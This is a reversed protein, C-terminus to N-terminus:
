AYEPEEEEIEDGTQYFDEEDAADEASPAFEYEAGTDDFFEAAGDIVCLQGRVRIMMGREDGREKSGNDFAKILSQYNYTPGSWDSLACFTWATCERLQGKYAMATCIYERGNVTFTPVSAVGTGSEALKQASYANGWLKYSAFTRPQNDRYSPFFFSDRYPYYFIAAGGNHWAIVELTGLNEVFMAANHGYSATRAKYEIGPFTKGAMVNCHNLLAQLEEDTCAFKGCQLSFKEDAELQGDAMDKLNSKAMALAKTFLSRAPGVISLLVTDAVEFFKTYESFTFEPNLWTGAPDATYAPAADDFFSFGIQASTNM